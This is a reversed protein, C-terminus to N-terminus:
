TTGRRSHVIFNLPKAFVVDVFARASVAAYFYRDQIADWSRSILKNLDQDDARVDHMYDAYAKANMMVATAVALTWGQRSGKRSPLHILSVNNVDCWRSLHKSENLYFTADDGHPSFAKSLTLLIASVDPLENGLANMGTPVM